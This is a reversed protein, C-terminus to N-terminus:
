VAARPRRVALVVCLVLTLVGWVACAPPLVRYALHQVTFEASLPGFALLGGVWAIVLIVPLSLWWAVRVFTPLVRRADARPTARRLRLAAWIALGLLGLASSGYQLWKYGDFPGWSDALAPLLDVGWRSDHTFADWLIHSLVGLMTSFVLLFPYLPRWGAYRPRDDRSLAEIAARYGTAGWGAPLRVSVWGPLLELTAPRLLVRWLLFLGLALLTTWVLNVPDHLFGYNLGVNRLFLSIDPTMAGIAIAAPVLPTRVFPLAVIAHSPTFPM